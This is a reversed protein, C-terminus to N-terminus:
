KKSIIEKSSMKYKYLASIAAGAFFHWMPEEIPIRWIMLGSFNKLYWTAAIWGPTFYEVIFYAPFIIIMVFLGSWMMYPVLDKRMYGVYLIIGTLLIFSGVITGFILSVLVFFITILLCLLFM